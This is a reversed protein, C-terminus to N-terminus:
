VILINASKNPNDNCLILRSITSFSTGSIIKLIIIDGCICTNVHDFDDSHARYCDLPTKDVDVDNYGARVLSSTTVVMLIMMM